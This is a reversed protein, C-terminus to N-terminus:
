SAIPSLSNIHVELPLPRKSLKAEKAAYAKPHRRLLELGADCM